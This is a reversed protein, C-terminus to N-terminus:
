CETSLAAVGLNATCRILSALIACILDLSAHQVRHVWCVAVRPMQAAVAAGKIGAHAQGDEARCRRPFCLCALQVARHGM